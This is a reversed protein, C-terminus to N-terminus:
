SGPEWIKNNPDLVWEHEKEFKFGTYPNGPLHRVIWIYYMGYGPAAVQSHVQGDLIKLTDYQRIHHVTEGTEGHGYGQPLTFRYHYIEPQPHGHPPYSSWRGPYTIVEGLVLNSEKRNNRDFIVRVQRLCTGQALGEGRFETDVDKPLFIKPEFTRDNEARSLAWEVMGSLATIKVPTNPPLHLTTADEDFLSSREIVTKKGAIEVEAKGDMLLWASEKSHTESIIGGQAMRCIGFDIGTDLDSEGERTIESLGHPFGGRFRTNLAAGGKLLTDSM